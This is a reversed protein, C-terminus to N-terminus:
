IGGGRDQLGFVLCLGPGVPLLVPEGSLIASCCTCAALGCGKLGTTAVALSRTAHRLCIGVCVQTCGIMDMLMRQAELVTPVGNRLVIHAAVILQGLRIYRKVIDPQTGPAAATPHAGPLQGPAQLPQHVGVACIDKLWRNSEEDSGSDGEEWVIQPAPCPGCQLPPGPLPLASAASPRHQPVSHPLPVSPMASHPAPAPAPATDPVPPLPLTQCPFCDLLVPRCTGGHAGAEM